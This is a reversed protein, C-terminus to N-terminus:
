RAKKVLAIQHWNNDTIETGSALWVLQGGVAYYAELGAGDQHYIRFQNNGNVRQSLYIELGEHDDHKAWFDITWDSSSDGAIDWDSSDAMSIYDGLGDFSLSSSGFKKDSTDLHTNGCFVM